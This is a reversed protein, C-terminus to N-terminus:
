SDLGALETSYPRTRWRATGRCAKRRPRRRVNHPEHLLRTRSGRSGAGRPRRARATRRGFIWTARFWARAGRAAGQAVLRDFARKSVARIRRPQLLLRLAAPLSLDVGRAVM